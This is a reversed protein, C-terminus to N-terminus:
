VERLNKTMKGRRKQEKLVRYTADAGAPGRNGVFSASIIFPLGAISPSPAFLSLYMVNKFEVLKILKLIM